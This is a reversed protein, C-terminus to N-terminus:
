NHNNGVMVLILLMIGAGVPMGLLLGGLFAGATSPERQEIKVELVKEPDIEVNQGHTMGVIVRHSQGDRIKEVYRGRNGDFEVVEGDKLIVKAIDYLQGVPIENGPLTIRKTVSCGSIMVLHATLLLWVLSKQFGHHKM